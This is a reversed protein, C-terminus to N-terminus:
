FTDARRHTEIYAHGLTQTHTDSRRHIRAQADAQRRAQRVTQRDTQQINCICTLTNTNTDTVFIDEVFSLM